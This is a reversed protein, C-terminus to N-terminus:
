RRQRRLMAILADATRLMSAHDGSIIRYRGNVVLTPTGEIDVAHEFASAHRLSAAMAPANWAARLKAAPLGQAVLWEQLEGDSPNMPMSGDDHMARFLPAHIREVAGLAETAFYGRSLADGSETTLPVYTFRVDKPLKRKWADVLPQFASCHPCWYAFVEVVEIKGQLPRYPQAGDIVVYDVGETPVFTAPAAASATAPLLLAFLLSLLVRTMADDL